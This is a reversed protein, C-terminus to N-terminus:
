SEFLEVGLDDLVSSIERLEELVLLGFLLDLAKHFLGERVEEHSIAKEEDGAVECSFCYVIEFGFERVDVDSVKFLL